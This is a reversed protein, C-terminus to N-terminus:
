EPRLVLHDRAAAEVAERSFLMPHYQGNLWLEIMDDYHPSFPHGSQGTPLVARSADFNSMDIIMRMSPHGTVAAPEERDYGNANVIHRGGDAPFPGRNVVSEILGIGSQGLPNSVFTATHLRGWTWDNMDGGVNEELWAIAEELSQLLIEDRTEAAPTDQSDWWSAEPQGALQHFFTVDAIEWVNDQGIDDALVNETLHRFFIEFLTAPVSDRREQLDWGRLREIAAQVQADDSSLGAFLPVYSGALLSKSDNQIHAMDDATVQGRGIAEELMETIRQGRDGNDWDLSLLYPYEEDVVAHNATVIYGWEPNLLAPLQEYPVWGEWEYEDTWGPVPTQGNGNQRLPVLGPMQYAINGEVDAYIVNQSPVDWYQLAERFEEYNTSRNLLSIAQLIRSPEHATWRISLVDSQGDVLENIIPGHRTLLVELVVDESGNVKIVEEIVEMDQWEGEYEYQRPNSPNVKEIYLDQVDPGVNTVAWAIQNNHGIIVGPVGAFSFGVVDMDPAHLGVEYWIAPMQISLHPDNALLPRGTDTHEGAVVWNNSGIFPGRGLAFGLEPVEGVVDTNVRSWDVAALAHPALAEEPLENDMAETPIMVPRTEYSYPPRLNAVTAEGLEKILEARDIEDRWNGGLDDSMVVAWTITNLPTWPEIEWKDNVLGLITYNLSLEDRHEDIYANVGASYAELTAIYEPAEKEYYALTAEGMRNWGMTRIFKDSELTAEGVMESIRGQGVHRWFEMQWFRDQAHVYGQAFYLDEENQAYIHAIGYEDRYVHVEAQLGPVSVAGGTKPLPRRVTVALAVVGVLVLVVIVGVLALGVRALRNM